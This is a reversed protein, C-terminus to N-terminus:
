RESVAPVPRGILTLSVTGGPMGELVAMGTKTEPGKSEFGIEIVCRGGARIGAEGCTDKM